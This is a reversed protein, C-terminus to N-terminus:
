IECSMCWTLRLTIYSNHFIFQLGSRSTHTTFYLSCAQAHQILQSIFVTLMLTIYSNHFVSKCNINWLEYMVSLSVTWIECSMCWAWAQLKYKVVWVDRLGSLSTHTTFYLSCTQAYHILQSIYIARRLTIYSNHFIFQSGLRLTHTTFYLSCAQAHHCSMCWAWAQLKYKVVWQM